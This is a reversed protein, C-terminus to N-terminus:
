YETLTATVPTGLAAVKQEITWVYYYQVDTCDFKFHDSVALFPKGDPFRKPVYPDSSGAPRVMVTLRSANDPNVSFGVKVAETGTTPTSAGSYNTTRDEFINSM